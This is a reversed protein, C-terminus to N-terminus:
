YSEAFLKFSNLDKQIMNKIMRRILPAMLYVLWLLKYHIGMTVLTADKERELLYFFNLQPLFFMNKVKEVFEISGDDLKNSTSNIILILAPFVCEHTTGDRSIKTTDLRVRKLHSIWRPKFEPNTLLRFVTNMSANIKIKLSIPNNSKEPLERLPPDPVRSHLPTLSFYKYDVSGIDEYEVKGPTLQVWDLSKSLGDGNQFSFFNETMLMYERTHIDNKMLKHVLVVEKGMLSHYKNIKVNIADGYHVLIKLSLDHATICAGCNCTHDRQYKKLHQHFNLFMREGQQVVQKVTPPRGFKFFLIADGEVESVSLGLENAELIIELLEAIIHQSHSLETENVFKTFGSIDPVFLLSSSAHINM